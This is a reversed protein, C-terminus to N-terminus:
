PKGKQGDHKHYHRSVKARNGCDAMSCWRRRGSRSRDLFLWGCRPGECEHLRRFTGSVLLDAADLLIPGLLADLAGPAETWTWGVGDGICALSRSAVIARLQANVPALRGPDPAHGGALPQLLRYLTERVERARTLLDESGPLALNDPFGALRSWRSLEGLDTLYERPGALRNGVTNVFDVALSGGVFQFDQTAPQSVCAPGGNTRLGM